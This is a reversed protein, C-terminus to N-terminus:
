RSRTLKASQITAPGNNIGLPYTGWPNSGGHVSIQKISTYNQTLNVTVERNGSVTYTGVIGVPSNPDENVALLRVLIKNATSGVKVKLIDGNNFNFPTSLDMWGSQWQESNGIQGTLNITTDGITATSTKDVKKTTDKKTSDNQSSNSKNNGSGCSTIGLALLILGLIAVNRIQKEVTKM